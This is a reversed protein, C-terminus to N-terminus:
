WAIYRAPHSRSPDPWLTRPRITGSTRRARDPKSRCDCTHRRPNSRPLCIGVIQEPGAGAAILYDALQNARRNLERYGLSEERCVVAVSEPTRAVQQEFLEHILGQQPYPYESATDNWEQLLQHREGAALSLLIHFEVTRLPPADLGRRTRDTGM